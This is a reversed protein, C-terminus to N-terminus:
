ANVLREARTTSYTADEHTVRVRGLKNKWSVLSIMQEASGFLAATFTHPFKKKKKLFSNKSSKNFFIQTKKGPMEM